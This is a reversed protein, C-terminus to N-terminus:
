HGFFLYTNLLYSSVTNDVYIHKKYFLRLKEKHKFNNM